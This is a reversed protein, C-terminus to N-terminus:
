GGFELDLLVAAHDSLADRRENHDSSSGWEYRMTSVFPLLSQNLFAQDLRFGNGGNPSYWTYARENGNLHRFVDIWGYAELSRFWNEEMSGFVKTEEDIGPIGSNTDGILLGVGLSWDKVVALVADHFSYKRGSVYNPIHMAGITIPQPREIQALLWRTPEVPAAKHWVQKLPFRSALLLANTAPTETTATTLQHSLGTSVLEQALQKSPPTARFESLAVLDPQWRQLQRGIEVVRRGGGARINWSVIRM